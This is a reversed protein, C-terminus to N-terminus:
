LSKKHQILHWKQKKSLQKIEYERKLADSKSPMQECYVLAVPKRSRTYKSATGDNHAQVRKNIDNTWGTYLTNDSCQLMYVFCSM